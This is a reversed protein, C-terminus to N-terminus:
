QMHFVMPYKGAAIVILKLHKIRNEELRSMLDKLNKLCPNLKELLPLLTSYTLSSENCINNMPASLIILSSESMALEFLYSNYNNFSIYNIKNYFFFLFFVKFLDEKPDVYFNNYQNNPNQFHFALNDPM